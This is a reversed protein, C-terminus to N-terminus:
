QDAFLRVTWCRMSKCYTTSSASRYGDPLTLAHSWSTKAHARSLIKVCPWLSAFNLALHRHGTCATHHVGPHTSEKVSVLHASDKTTFVATVSVQVSLSFSTGNNYPPPCALAVNGILLHQLIVFIRRKESINGCPSEQDRVNRKICGIVPATVRLTEPSMPYVDPWVEQSRAFPAWPWEPRGSSCGPHQLAPIWPSTETFDPNESQKTRSVALSMSGYYVVSVSVCLFFLFYIRLQISEIM